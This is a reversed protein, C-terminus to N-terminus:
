QAVLNSRYKLTSPAIGFEPALSAGLEAGLLRIIAYHHVAHGVCFAMERAVVSPLRVPEDKGYGVSYRVGCPRDMVEEDYGSLEHILDQTATRAAERSTELRPDRARRDYDIELREVGATLCLFHDLVHRYHQGLSARYPSGVFKCYTADDLEALLELGQRLVEEAAKAVRHM